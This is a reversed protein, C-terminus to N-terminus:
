AAKEKQKANLFANRARVLAVWREDEVAGIDAPGVVGVHALYDEVAELLDAFLDPM